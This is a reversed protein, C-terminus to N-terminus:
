SPCVPPEGLLGYVGHGGPRSPPWPTYSTPPRAWSAMYMLAEPAVPLGPPRSTYPRRAGGVGEKREFSREVPGRPQVRVSKQPSRDRGHRHLADGPLVRSPQDLLRRVASPPTYQHRVGAPVFARRRRGNAIRVSLATAVLAAVLDARALLPVASTHAASPPPPVGGPRTAVTAVLAAAAGSESASWTAACSRAARGASTRSANARM